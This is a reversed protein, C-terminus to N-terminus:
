AHRSRHSIKRACVKVVPHYELLRQRLPLDIWGEPLTSGVTPKAAAKAQEAVILEDAERPPPPPPPPPPPVEEATAAAAPEPEPEPEPTPEPEDSAGGGEM